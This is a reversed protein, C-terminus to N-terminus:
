DAYEKVPTCWSSYKDVRGRVVDFYYKQLEKSIPGIEGSGVQRHDIETVPSFQAGTGVFFVEDAVYLESRDILREVVPLGLDQALHIVTDRTIGELIDAHVPPTILTGRRVIFINEASGECVHGDSSLFIAEDYGDELAESKALAANVYCGNIKARMPIANDELHRWSSVKARLGKSLDLYEGMPVAFLLFDDDLGTLKVGIAETSKYFVPRIYVDEKDGNKAVVRCTLRCLEELSLMPTIRLIRCSNLLREYHEKMRFILIDDKEPVWYGRIGEFCATGYLFAHTAVSIKAEEMPIIRGKLYAFRSM